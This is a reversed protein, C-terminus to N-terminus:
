INTIHIRAYIAYGMYDSKQLLPVSWKTEQEFIKPM